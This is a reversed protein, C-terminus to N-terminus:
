KSVLSSNPKLKTLWNMVDLRWEWLGYFITFLVAVGAIYWNTPNSEAAVIDQVGLTTGEGAAVVKRCRNTEPNREQGPACSVLGTGAGIKRCRNTAPNREQGPSCPALTSLSSILRCRNTEPSRVQDARCPTLSSTLTTVLRCRNTEPNREQDSRCPTLTPTPTAVAAVAVCKGTTENRTQNDACPKLLQRINAEAPTVAYTAEWLAPDFLAWSQDDALSGPYAAIYLESEQPSLLYITGGSANPLIIKSESDYIARYAGPQMIIEGFVHIHTKGQLQLGCGTLNIAEDTPNYVEIFEKGGDSGSPNPLLESIVIGECSLAPIAPEEEDDKGDGDENDNDGDDVPPAPCDLINGPTIESYVQFDDDNVNTNIIAGDSLCRQLSESAKPSATPTGLFNNPQGYGILDVENDLSDLLVVTGDGAPLYGSAPGGDFYYDANEIYDEFSVALYSGADILGELTALVRTPAATGHHEKTLFVVKWDDVSYASEDSANYIEVFEDKTNDTSGTQVETIFVAPKLEPADTISEEALVSWHPAFVLVFIFLVYVLSIKRM